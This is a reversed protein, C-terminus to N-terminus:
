GYAEMSEGTNSVPTSVRRLDRGEQVERAFRVIEDRVYVPASPGDVVLAEPLRRQARFRMIRPKPVKLIRAAETVGVLPPQDPLRQLYKEVRRVVQRDAEDRDTERHDRQASKLVRILKPGNVWREERPKPETELM